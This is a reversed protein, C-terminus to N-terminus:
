KNNEMKIVCVESEITPVNFYVQENPFCKKAAHDLENKAEESLDRLDIRIKLYQYKSPNGSDNLNSVIM